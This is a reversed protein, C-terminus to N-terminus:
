EAGPRPPRSAPQAKDVAMRKEGAVAMPEGLPPWMKEGSTAM